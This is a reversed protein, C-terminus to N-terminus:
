LVMNRGSNKAKYLKKDAKEVLELINEEFNYQVVGASITVKRDISFNYNEVTERLKEALIKANVENTEPCFILFEEGGWRGVVDTKRVSNVTLKAIDKLVEDGANHGFTDNIQKFHDIDFLIISFIRKYRKAKEIEDSLVKVIYRRNYLNTLQDRQSLEKLQLNKKYIEKETLSEIKKAIIGIENKPYDFLKSSHKRNEIIDEVREKLKLIPYVFRKRFSVALGWGITFAILLVVLDCILIQYVIPSFIKSKEIETVVTWGLPKIFHLYILKRKSSENKKYLKNLLSTNKHIIIKGKNNIIFSNILKDKELLKVIRGLSVDIDIVGAIKKNKDILVKSFSILWEKTKIERYPIGTSIKPYSFLAAQYWPRVKPNYGKPPIYNNILLKGNEYGSYIYAIDPDISKLRKYIALVEKISKESSFDVNAIRDDNSLLEIYNKIKLFLSNITLTITENKEQIIKMSDHIKIKYIVIALYISFTILIICTFFFITVFVDKKIMSNM